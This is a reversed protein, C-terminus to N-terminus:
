VDLKIFSYNAGEVTIGYGLRLTMHVHELFSSLKCVPGFIICAGNRSSFQHSDFVGIKTDDICIVLSHNPNLIFLLCKLGPKQCADIIVRNFHAEGEGAVMIGNFTGPDRIPISIQSLIDNVSLDAQDDPPSLINQYVTNGLVITAKYMSAIKENVETSPIELESNLFALGTYLSIVTCANSWFSMALAQQSVQLSFLFRKTGGHTDITSNELIPAALPILAGFHYNCKCQASKGAKSCVNTPCDQCSKEVASIRRHGKVQHGCTGCHPGKYASPVSSTATTSFAKISLSPPHLALIEKAMADVRVKVELETIEPITLQEEESDQFGDEETVEENHFVGKRAITGLRIIEARLFHLCLPCQVSDLLCTEHFAHWCSDFRIVQTGDDTKVICGPLDCYTEPKPPLKSHFGLPLCPGPIKEANWLNNDIGLKGETLRSAKKVFISTLISAVKTKLSMLQNTTFSYYKPPTFASRFNHQKGKSAFIAKAQKALQNSTFHSKTQARVISHVNEVGYEDFLTINERVIRFIDPRHKQWYLINSLWILPSKDYHRRRFCYFMVWVRYVSLFYEFYKNSKFVVSYISLVLPIYNDFLNLLAGYEPDRCKAFSTVVATRVLTWGGYILELLLTARWPKPKDALKSKPFINEYLFKMLPHYMRIVNEQANLSIHLAGLMPIVSLALSIDNSISSIQKVQRTSAQAPSNLSYTHDSDSFQEHHQRATVKTSDTHQGLRSYAIQRLYFQTPWDGLIFLAFASAYESVKSRFLLELAKQYDGVSKLKCEQFEVLYLNDLKRMHRVNDSDKYQHTELRHRATSPNFFESRIADSMASAYTNSLSSMYKCSTLDRALDLPSIIDPDLHHHHQNLPIAPINPFIRIVITCMCKANSTNESDQRRHSHISTYDDIIAIILFREKIANDIVEDIEKEYAAIANAEFTRGTAATTTVGLRRATDFAATNANESMLFLSFDKQMFNCKQSLGYCLIYIVNIALKEIDSKRKENRRTSSMLSQIVDYITTAGCETCMQRFKAPDYTPTSQHFERYIHHKLLQLESQLLGFSSQQLINNFMGPPLLADGDQTENSTASLEESQSETTSSGVLAPGAAGSCTTMLAEVPFAQTEPTCCGALKLEKPKRGQKHKGM